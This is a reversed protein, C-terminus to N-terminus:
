RKPPNPSVLVAAQNLRKGVQGTLFELDDARSGIRVIADGVSRTASALRPAIFWFVVPWWLDGPILGDSSQFVQEFSQSEFLAMAGPKLRAVLFHRKVATLMQPRVGGQLGGVSPPAAIQTFPREYLM